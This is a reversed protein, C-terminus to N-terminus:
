LLTKKPILFLSVSKDFMKIVKRTSFCKDLSVARITVGIRWLMAVVKSFADWEFLRSIGYGVCM